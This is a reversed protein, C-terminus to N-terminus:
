RPAQVPQPPVRQWGESCTSVYPYYASASQCWYWWQGSSQPAAPAPTPAEDREVYVRPEQPAVVVPPSSYAWYGGGWYGPGWYGSGWYGPWYGRGWYGPGWYGGWYGPGWVGVSYHSHGGRHGGRYGGHYGGSYGGRYGGGAVAPEAVVAFGLAVALAVLAATLTRM